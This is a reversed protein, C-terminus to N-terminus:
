ENSQFDVAVRIISKTLNLSLTCNDTTINGNVGKCKVGSVGSVTLNSYGTINGTASDKTVNLTVSVGTYGAIELNIISVTTTSGYDIVTVQQNATTITAGLDSATVDLNGTFTTTTQAQATITGLVSLTFFTIVTLLLNKM